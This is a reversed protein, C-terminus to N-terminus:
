SKNVFEVLIIIMKITFLSATAEGGGTGFSRWLRDMNEQMQRLEQFPDWRRLVM